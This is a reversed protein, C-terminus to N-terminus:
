LMALYRPRDAEPVKLLDFAQQATWQFAEMVSRVNEVLKSTAGQEIGDRVGENYIQESIRCMERVGEPTRKFYEVRGRMLGDRMKGPDSECFDHMLDGFPGEGRWQANAYLIHTGDGYEEGGEGRLRYHRTARGSGEPDCELVVVVWRDPLEGFDRGAELSEVDMASGHYRFRRPDLDSGVQVEIDHQTGAADTAYVDLEVSRSGVIRKMDRQTESHVIRLDGVGTIVRLVHQTLEPCDKFLVRMFTDDIPRYKELLALDREIGHM